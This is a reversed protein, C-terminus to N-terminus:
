RGRKTGRCHDSKYFSPDIPARATSPYRRNVCSMYPRIHWKRLHLRCARHGLVETMPHLTSPLLQDPRRKNIDDTPPFKIIPIRTLWQSNPEIPVIPVNIM